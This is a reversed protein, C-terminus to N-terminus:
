GKELPDERICLTVLIGEKAAMGTHGHVPNTSTHPITKLITM